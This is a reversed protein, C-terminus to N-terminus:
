SASKHHRFVRELDPVGLQNVDEHQVLCSHQRYDKCLSIRSMRDHMRWASFKM